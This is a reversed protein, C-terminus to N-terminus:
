NDTLNRLKMKNCDIVENYVGLEDKVNQSFDGSKFAVFVALHQKYIMTLKDPNIVSDKAISILDEKGIVM